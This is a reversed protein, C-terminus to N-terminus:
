ARPSRERPAAARRTATGSPTPTRAARSRAAPAADRAGARPSPTSRFGAATARAASRRPSSRCAATVTSSPRSRVTRRRRGDRPVRRAPDRSVCRRLRRRPRGSVARVGARPRREDRPGQRRGRDADRRPPATAREAIGPGLHLRRPQGRARVAAPEQTRAGLASFTASGTAGNDFRLLLTAHDELARGPVFTRFDALVEVIRANTVHEALDFWHAGLDATVYTPGSSRPELRWGTTVLLADDCVYRGHVVRLEGLDGAEVVARMHEVLPYGRVHYAVAGVRDSAELAQSCARARRSARRSRSRASSTRATSSHWCRRSRTSRM